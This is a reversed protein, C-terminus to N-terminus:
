DESGVNRAALEQAGQKHVDVAGGHSPRRAGELRSSVGHLDEM